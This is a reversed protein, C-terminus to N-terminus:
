PVLELAEVDASHLSQPITAGINESNSIHTSIIRAFDFGYDYLDLTSLFREGGRASLRTTVTDHCVPDIERVLSCAAERVAFFLDRATETNPQNM